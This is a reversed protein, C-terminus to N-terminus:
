EARGSQECATDSQSAHFTSSYMTDYSQFKAICTAGKLHQQKRCAIGNRWWRYMATLSASSQSYQAKFIIVIM